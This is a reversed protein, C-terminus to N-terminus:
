VNIKKRLIAAGGLVLSVLGFTSPEPVSTDTFSGSGLAFDNASGSITDSMSTSIVVKAINADSSSVGIFLVSNDGNSNATGIESVQGLLTNSADYANLYGTFSGFYDNQLKFGVSQVASTFTITDPGYGQNWLLADGYAFNGSWSVGQEVIMFGQNGASSVTFGSGSAPSSITDGPNGLLGFNPIITGADPATILTLSGAHVCLASGILMATLLARNRKFM